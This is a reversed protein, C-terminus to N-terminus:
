EIRSPALFVQTQSYRRHHAWFTDGRLSRINWTQHLPNQNRTFYMKVTKRSVGSENVLENEESEIVLCFEAPEFGM